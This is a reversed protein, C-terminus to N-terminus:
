RQNETKQLRAKPAAEARPVTGFLLPNEEPGTVFCLPFTRSVSNSTPTILSQDNMEEKLTVSWDPEFLAGRFELETVAPALPLAAPVIEIKNVCDVPRLTLDFVPTAGIIRVVVDNIDKFDIEGGLALDVDKSAVNLFELSARNTDFTIRSSAEVVNSFSDSSSSLKGNILQMDGAISPHQLTESLSIKGSLIGDQFIDSHFLPPATALFIAPFDVSIQVPSM